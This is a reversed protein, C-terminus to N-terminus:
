TEQLLDEATLGLLGTPSAETAGWMAIFQGARTKNRWSQFLRDTSFDTPIFSCGVLEACHSALSRKRLSSISSCFHDPHPRTLTAPSLSVPDKTQCGPHHCSQNTELHRWRSHGSCRGGRSFLSTLISLKLKEGAASVTFAPVSIVQVFSSSMGCVTTLLPMKLDLTSPVPSFNVKVTLLGPM